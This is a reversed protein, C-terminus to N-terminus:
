NSYWSKNWSRMQEIERNQAEIIDKALQKMESKGTSNLLMTAMIVAMQHHPIMEELFAKDFPQSSELKKIDSSDGMIGGHMMGSGMDHGMSSSTTSVEKGYWDKYWSRMKIIEEGQSRKIDQALQKIEPHEGKQLAIDAMTIASEHHPIMQEIFHADINGMMQNGSEMNNRGMMSDGGRTMFGMRGSWMPAVALTLVVGLILGIIGATLIEKNM